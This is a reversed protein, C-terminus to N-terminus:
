LKKTFCVICNAESFGVAKHFAISKGNTLECDSAFEACGNERAWKECRELLAAAIGKRRFAELVYIGEVYGVPSSGTGEVYDHRLGCVCFAVPEAGTEYLFVASQKSCLTEAFERALKIEDNDPWLLLALKTVIEQDSLLAQRIM